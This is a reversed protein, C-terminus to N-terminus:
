ELIKLFEERHSPAVVPATAEHLERLFATLNKGKLFGNGLNDAPRDPRLDKLIWYRGAELELRANDLTNITTGAYAEEPLVGVLLRETNQLLPDDIGNEEKALAIKRTLEESTWARGSKWGCLGITPTNSNSDGMVVLTQPFVKQFTAAVTQFDKKSLQHAPLWQCFLGEATLARKVNRFHEVSFLRGEGSGHPRFLDAVVLDYNEDAKAIFSRADDELIQNGSREFFARNEDRFHSQAAVAVMGSLEVAVVKPPDSLTELGGASIGTALGLSCVNKAESHLLWPLLLQRREATAFGSSGLVYQNNMLISRSKRQDRVVLLVGERGFDMNEIAYKTKSRPSIYRLQGFQTFGIAAVILMVCPFVVTMANGRIAIWILVALVCLAATLAAFGGYIGVTAILVSNALETGILGGLGNVALVRGVKVGQPDGEAHLSLIAPFVLGSCLLTGGAAVAVLVFLHRWYEDISGITNGDLAVLYRISVLQNTWQYLILPCLICLTAAGSFGILLQIRNSVGFRNLIAVSASGLSLFLIVNALMASTTHTSSPAVLSLLRLLLVELALVFLGSLFALLYVYFSGIPRGQKAPAEGSRETINRSGVADTAAFRTLGLAVLAVLVNGCTAILMTGQVGFQGLLQTSTLWLGFVGGMMNLTYIWIGSQSVSGGHEIAARIFLPMTVGMAIAPPLVVAASCVLKVIQNQWSAVQGIGGASQLIWDAWMPLLLAPISLLAILLEACALRRAATDNTSAWPTALWGGAALGLFFLGLVRGTVWETAGLLDILRRTWLLEHSLAISGSLFALATLVFRPM